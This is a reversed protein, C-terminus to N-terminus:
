SDFSAMPQQLVAFAATGTVQGRRGAEVVASGHPTGPRVGDLELEEVVVLGHHVVARQQHVLAVQRVHGAEDPPFSRIRDTSTCSPRVAATLPMRSSSRSTPVGLTLPASVLGLSPPAILLLKWSVRDASTTALM